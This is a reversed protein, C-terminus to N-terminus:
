HAHGHGDDAPKEAPVYSSPKYPFMLQEVWWEYQHGKSRAKMVAGAFQRKDPFEKSSPGEVDFVAVAFIGLELGRGEDIGTSEIKLFHMDQGPTSTLRSRIKEIGGMKQELGMRQQGKASEYDHLYDTPTKEKRMEPHTGWWMAEAATPAKLIAILKKAFKEAERNRVYDQVTTITGSALGFMLGLAIGANALGRGTLMDPYRKISRNAAVGVAVALVAFLYFFWHAFSFLALFGFILSFVALRSIARYAPLENEIVSDIQNPEADILSTKQDTAV